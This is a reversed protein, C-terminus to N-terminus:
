TFITFSLSETSLVLTLSSAGVSCLAPLPQPLWLCPERYTSVPVKQVFLESSAEREVQEPVLGVAAMVIVAMLACALLSVIDLMCVILTAALILVAPFRYRLRPSASDKVEIRQFCTPGAELLLVDGAHLKINVPDEHIRKGERHVSIVAAGYTTRFGLERVTKDVLPGSKVVVAQVLERTHVNENMHKIEGEKPSELGPIKRLNGVVSTGGSFWLTDKHGNDELLAQSPFPCRNDTRSSRLFSSLHLKSVRVRLVVRIEEVDTEKNELFECRWVSVSRDRLVAAEMHHVQLNLQFLGKFVDPLLGPRDPVNVGILVLRGSYRSDTAVVLQAPKDNHLIM